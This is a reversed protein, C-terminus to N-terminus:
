HGKKPAVPLENAAYRCGFRGCYRGERRELRLEAVDRWVHLGLRCLLMGITTRAMDRSLM